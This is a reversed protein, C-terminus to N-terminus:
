APFAQSVSTFPVKPPFGVFGGMWSAAFRIVQM